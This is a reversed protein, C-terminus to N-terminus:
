CTTAFYVACELLQFYTLEFARPLLKGLYIGSPVNLEQIYSGASLFSFEGFQTGSTELM